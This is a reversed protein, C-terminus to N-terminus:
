HGGSSSTYNNRGGNQLYITAVFGNFGGCKPAKVSPAGGFLTDPTRNEQVIIVIHDFHPPPTYTQAQATQINAALGTFLTLSVVARFMFKAM